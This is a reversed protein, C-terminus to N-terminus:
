WACPRRPGSPRKPQWTLCRRQQQRAPWSLLRASARHTTSALGCRRVEGIRSRLGAQPTRERPLCRLGHPRGGGPAPHDRMRAGSSRSPSWPPRRKAPGGQGPRRPPPAQGSGVWRGRRGECPRRPRSAGPASTRLRRACACAGARSRLPATPRTCSRLARVCVVAGRRRPRAGPCRGFTFCFPSVSATGRRAALRPGAIHSARASLHRNKIFDHAAVKFRPLSRLGTSGLPDQKGPGGIGRCSRVLRM